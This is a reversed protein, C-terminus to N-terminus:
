TSIGCGSGCNPTPWGKHKEPPTEISKTLFHVDTAFITLEGVKTRILEGDIGILDGLDFQQTLEWNKEGVQNMGIAVQIRGTWDHLDLFVLKGASRLLVIRGAARVTPGHLKPPKGAEAAPESTIENERARIKGIATHDDFRHGWPDVGLEQIKRLKVRRAAELAAAGHQPENSEPESM